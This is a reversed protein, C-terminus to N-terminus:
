HIRDENCFGASASLGKFTFGCFPNRLRLFFFNDFIQFVTRVLKPMLFMWNSAKLFM